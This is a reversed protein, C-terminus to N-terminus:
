FNCCVKPGDIVNNRKPFLSTKDKSKSFLTIKIGSWIVAQNPKQSIRKTTLFKEDRGNEWHWAYKLLIGLLPLQTDAHASELYCAEEPYFGPLCLYQVAEGSFTKRSSTLLCQWESFWQWEWQSTWFACEAKVTKRTRLLVGVPVSELGRAGQWYSQAASHSQMAVHNMLLPPKWSWCSGSREFSTDVPLASAQPARSRAM